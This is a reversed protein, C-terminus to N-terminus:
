YQGLPTVAEIDPEEFLTSSEKSGPLRFLYNPLNELESKVRDRFTRNSLGVTAEARKWIDNFRLEEGPKLYKTWDIFTKEPGATGVKDLSIHEGRYESLFTKENWYLRRANKKHEASVANGKTVALYRANPENSDARLDLIVRAKQAFAAAGQVDAQDPSTKYASKNIHGVFMVLCNEKEAFSCYPKLGDRIQFNSNGDKASLIDAIADIIVVDYAAELFKKELLEVLEKSSLASAPLVEISNVSEMPDWIPPVLEQGDRQLQKRDEFMEGVLSYFQRVMVEKTTRLGDETVIYLARRHVPNLQYGLFDKFGMVLRLAFERAFMSKGSDPKGVIGVLGSAPLIPELLCTESDFNLDMLEKLTYAHRGEDIDTQRQMARLYKGQLELENQLEIDETM